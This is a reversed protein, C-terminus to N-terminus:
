LGGITYALEGNYEVIFSKGEKVAEVVDMQHRIVWVAPVTAIGDSDFTARMEKIKKIQVDQWAKVKEPNEQRYCKNSALRCTICYATEYSKGRRVDYNYTTKFESGGCVKCKRKKKFEKPQPKGAKM